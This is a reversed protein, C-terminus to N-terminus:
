RGHGWADRGILPANSADDAEDNGTNHDLNAEHDDYLEPGRQPDDHVRHVDNDRRQKRERDPVRRAPSLFPAM